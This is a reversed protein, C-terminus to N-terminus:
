APAVKRALEDLRTTMEKAVHLVDRVLPASM